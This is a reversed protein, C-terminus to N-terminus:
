GNGDSAYVVDLPEKGFILYRIMRHGEELKHKSGWGPVEPSIEMESRFGALEGSAGGGDEGGDM